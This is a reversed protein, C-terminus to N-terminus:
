VHASVTLLPRCSLLGRVVSLCVDMTMVGTWVDRGMGDCSFLRLTSEGSDNEEM